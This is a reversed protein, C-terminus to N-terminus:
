TSDSGHDNWLLIETAKQFDPNKTPANPTNSRGMYNQKQKSFSIDIGLENMLDTGVIMDYQAEKPDTKTDVHCM